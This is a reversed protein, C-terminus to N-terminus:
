VGILTGHEGKAVSCSVAFEGRAFSGRQCWMEPNAGDNGSFTCHSLRVLADVCM